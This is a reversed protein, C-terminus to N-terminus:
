TVCKGFFSQSFLLIPLGANLLLDFVAQKELEEKVAVGIKKLIYPKETYDWGM